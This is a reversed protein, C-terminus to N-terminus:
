LVACHDLEFADGGEAGNNNRLLTAQDGVQVVGNTLSILVSRGSLLQINLPHAEDISVRGRLVDMTGAGPFYYVRTPREGGDRLITLQGKFAHDMVYSRAADRTRLGQLQDREVPTCTSDRAVLFSVYNGNIDESVLESTRVVGAFLLASANMNLASLIPTNVPSPSSLVPVSAERSVGQVAMGLSWLAVVLRRIM